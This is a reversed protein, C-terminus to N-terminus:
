QERDGKCLTPIGKSSFYKKQLHDRLVNIHGKDNCRHIYKHSQFLTAECFQFFLYSARPRNDNKFIPVQQRKETYTDTIDKRKQDIKYRQPKVMHRNQHIALSAEDGAFPM